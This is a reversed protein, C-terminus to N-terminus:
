YGAASYRAPQHAPGHPAAYPAHLIRNSVGQYHNTPPAYRGFNQPVHRPAFHSGQFQGGGYPASRFGGSGYSGGPPCAAAIGATLMSSGFILATALTRTWNKLNM